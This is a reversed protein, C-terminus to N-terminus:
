DEIEYSTVIQKPKPVIVEGKLIILEHAGLNNINKLGGQFKLKSADGYESNGHEDPTIADIVSQKEIYKSIYIDGDGGSIIYYYM